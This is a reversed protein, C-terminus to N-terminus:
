VEVEARAGTSGLQILARDGDQWTQQPSPPPVPVETSHGYVLGQHDLGRLQLPHKLIHACLLCSELPAWTWCCGRNSRTLGGAM